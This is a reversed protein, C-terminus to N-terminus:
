NEGVFDDIQKIYDTNKARWEFFQIDKIENKPLYDREIFHIKFDCKSEIELTNRYCEELLDKMYPHHSDILERIDKDTCLYFTNDSFGVNMDAYKKKFNIAKIAKHIKEDSVNCYHADTTIIMKIGYKNAFKICWKNVIQQQEMRNPMLEIYLDNGFANKLTQLNDEAQQERGSLIFKGLVGSQCATSCVLGEHYKLIDQMLFNPKYYFNDRVAIDQLKLLNKWGTENKALLVIHFNERSDKADVDLKAYAEIGIIPKVNQELLAKQFYISGAITGHDTLACAKFGKTKLDKAVDKLSGYGDGLSYESHYHLHVFPQFITTDQEEVYGEIIWDLEYIICASEKTYNINEKNKHPKDTYKILITEKDDIKCVDHQNVDVFKKKALNCFYHLGALEASIMEFKALNEAKQLNIKYKM